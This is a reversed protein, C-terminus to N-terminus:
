RRTFSVDDLYVEVHHGGSQINFIGFRDFSAGIQRHGPPLDMTHTEGDFTVEIRGRGDAGGPRYHLSWDHVQGDPRIVPWAAKGDAGEGSATLGVGSSTSYSPRFFHGVRSPGEVMIALYSRQRAEHEPTENNRKDGGGFWGIYVGSDSGAKRLVIKGGARLEDDLSLQGVPTGYFAPREDRFVIGGIEGSGRGCHETDSFGFDHFPRIVREVFEVDNGMAEWGPDDDFTERQGDILLDDLYLEIRAGPAQVNWIGFRDFTAGETRHGPALALEYTRDDIRFRLLGDGGAGQPDYDLSWTRVTDGVAFPPTPTTQYRPGEYAGGGGTRYNRTGYEYFVWYKGGNGDVRFALSNPTRWGRSSENFWGIMVGSGGDARPVVLKGSARLRHDLTRPAIRRGYYAAVTSREVIGGIEGRNKGGARNTTRYGFDQRTVPLPPRLLRNRFGEWQPDAGFTEQRTTPPGAVDDAVAALAPWVAWLALAIRAGSRNM